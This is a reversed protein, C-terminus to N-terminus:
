LMADGTLACDARRLAAIPVPTMDAGTTMPIVELWIVSTALANQCMNVKRIPETPWIGRRNQGAAVPQGAHRLFRQQHEL